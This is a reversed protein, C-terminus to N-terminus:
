VVLVELEGFGDLLFSFRNQAGKGGIGSAGLSSGSRSLTNCVQVLAAMGNYRRFGLIAM